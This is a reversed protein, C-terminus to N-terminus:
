VNGGSFKFDGNKNPAGRDMFAANGGGDAPGIQTFTTAPNQHAQTDRAAIEEPTGFMHEAPPTFRNGIGSGKGGRAM